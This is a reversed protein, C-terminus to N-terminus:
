VQHLENSEDAFIATAIEPTARVFECAREFGLALLTTSYGEADLSRRAIVTASAIDTQVPMGTRSDLIHHYWQGQQEFGREYIGSTVASLDALPLAGLIQTNDHPNRVGVMWPKGDPKRGHCVVNGGLNITFSDLGGAVLTDTLADAIYGKAIGGLDLTAEPDAMRILRADGEQSLEITRWNVHEMAVQLAHPDAVHGNHFDWLAVAPGVTIDFVGGSAECYRLAAQVLEFTEPAVQVPAGGAAAIRAIDSHPLTRSFLREFRRCQDLAARFAQEATEPNGFAALDVATNFAFFSAQAPEDEATGAAFAYYDEHPIPDIHADGPM